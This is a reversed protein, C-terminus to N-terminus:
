DPVFDKEVPYPDIDSFHWWEGSYPVFGNASMIRELVRANNGAEESVDNYDRDAKPSFDDFGTPMLVEEGDSTVLTVDVTNGKSHSSYGKNPNAVYLPDPKAEWLAFQAKVPRFADWVKLGYGLENLEEQVAILKKVTGYRIYADNFNYIVQGTINDDTAYKLEVIINPIYDSMLVFDDDSKEEVKETNEPSPEPRLSQSLEPAPTGVPEPVPSLTIGARESAEAASETQGFYGCGALSM